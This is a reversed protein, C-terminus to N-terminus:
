IRKYKFWYNFRVAKSFIHATNSKVEELKMAEKFLRNALEFNGLEWYYDHLVAARSYRGFPPFITWFIRPVSALDTKFGKPVTHITGDSSRYILDETLKLWKDDVVRTLHVTKLQTKFGYIKRNLEIREM